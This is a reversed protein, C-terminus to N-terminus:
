WQMEEGCKERMGKHYKLGAVPGLLAASRIQLQWDKEMRYFVLMALASIVLLM